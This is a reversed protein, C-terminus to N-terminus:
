GNADEGTRKDSFAAELASLDDGMTAGTVTVHVVLRDDPGAPKILFEGYNGGDLDDVDSMDERVFTIGEDLTAFVLVETGNRGRLIYSDGDFAWVRGADWNFFGDVNPHEFRDSTM